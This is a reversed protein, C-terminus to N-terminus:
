LRSKLATFAWRAGLFFVGSAMLYLSKTLLSVQLNYYFAILFFTLGVLGLGALKYQGRSFGVTMVLIGALIGPTFVLPVMAVAAGTLLWAPNIKGPHSKLNEWGVWIITAALLIGAANWWWSDLSYDHAGISTIAAVLGFIALASTGPLFHNTLVRLKVLLKPEKTWAWAFVALVAATFLPFSEGDLHEFQLGTLCLLLVMTSGFRQITNRTLWLIVSEIAIALLLFGTGDDLWEMLAHGLIFQGLIGFALTFPDLVLNRYNLRSFILSAAILISGFILMGPQSGLLETSALFFWFLLASIWAGISAFVKIALKSQQQEFFLDHSLTDPSPLLEPHKEQMGDLLTELQLAQTKM